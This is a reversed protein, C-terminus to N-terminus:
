RVRVDLISIRVLISHSHRCMLSSCLQTIPLEEDPSTCLLKRGKHINAFRQRRRTEVIPRMGFRTGSTFQHREENRHLLTADLEAFGSSTGVATAQAKVRCATKGSQILHDCRILLMM